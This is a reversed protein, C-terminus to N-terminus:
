RYYFTFTIEEETGFAMIMEESWHAYPSAQSIASRCMYIGIAKATTEKLNIEQVEGSSNLVFSLTVKSNNEMQAGEQALTNWSTSVTEILREMYEGFESFKADVAISGTKSVGPKKDRIPGPAVRPLKPRPRPSPANLSFAESPKVASIMPQPSQFREEEEGEEEEGDIQLDVNTPDEEEKEFDTEAIGDEELDKEDLEGFIPVEKKLPVVPPVPMVEPMEESEESEEESEEQSESPPPAFEPPEFSGSLFQDTEVNDDSESSPREDPDLEEAAEEQAAQQNRAAFRDTEDPENDPADPNTQTYTPEEPEEPDNLVIQYEKYPNKVESPDVSLFADPVVLLGLLHVFVTGALGTWISKKSGKRKRSLADSLM